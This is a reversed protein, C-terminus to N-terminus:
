RVGSHGVIDPDLAYKPWLAEQAAQWRTEFKEVIKHIVIAATRSSSSNNGDAEDKFLGELIARIEIRAADPKAIPRIVDAGPFCGVKRLQTIAWTPQREEM